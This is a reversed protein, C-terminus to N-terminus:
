IFSSCHTSDVVANSICNKRGYVKLQARHKSALFYNFYSIRNKNRFKLLEKSCVELGYSKMDNWWNNINLPIWHLSSMECKTYVSFCIKAAWHNIIAFSQNQTAFFFWILNIRVKIAWFYIIKKMTLCLQIKHILFIHHNVMWQFNTHVPINRHKWNWFGHHPQM